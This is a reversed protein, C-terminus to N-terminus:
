EKPRCELSASLRGSSESKYRFKLSVKVKFQLYLRTNLGVNSRFNQNPDDVIRKLNDFDLTQLLWCQSAM